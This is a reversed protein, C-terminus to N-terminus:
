TDSNKRVMFNYFNYDTMPADTLGVNRGITVAQGRHYTSHNMCHHIYEFKPRTGKVWQTDLYCDKILSAESLSNVYKAFEESHSLIGNFVDDNTGDFGKQRFSPKPPEEKVVSLWFRETDWIHVLTKKLSPFSSPVEQEMKEPPKTKLWEVLKTNAWLNFDAYDKVLYALSLEKKTQM